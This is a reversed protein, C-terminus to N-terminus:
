STWSARPRHRAEDYVYGNSDSLTVAKAGSTSSSRWRTSPWTAAAPSSAPRAKSRRTAPPSCRRRRLLRLRLRHGRSPHALRGLQAGQRHARGHVRQAAAQVPRLPLRDRPRRRRHRGRARRHQPRHPPLAREHLEPLLADGRQREQGQSRLGLRGQRRGHAAHDALEQVGARLRPVQPHRPQRVPPLAPRGQLSRHRQEDRHPFRPQDPRRGRDDQWPVRFMIVREPEIIRELIKRM